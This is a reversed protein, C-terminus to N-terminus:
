VYSELRAGLLVPLCYHLRCLGNSHRHVPVDPVVQLTAMQAEPIYPPNSVIGGLQGQLHWAPEFWSGQLVQVGMGIQHLNADADRLLLPQPALLQAWPAADPSADVALILTSAPLLTALGLAIAGSGTGLDM